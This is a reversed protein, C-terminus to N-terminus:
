DDTRSLEDSRHLWTSGDWGWLDARVEEFGIYVREPRLALHASLLDSVIASLHRPRDGDLGGISKIAVYACPADDSGLVMLQEARLLCMVSNEPKGLCFALQRSLEAMFLAPDAPFPASTQIHILPM